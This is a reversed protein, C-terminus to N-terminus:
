LDMTALCWFGNQPSLPCNKGRITNVGAAPQSYGRVHGNLTVQHENASLLTYWGYQLCVGNSCHSDRPM